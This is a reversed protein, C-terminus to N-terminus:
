RQLQGLLTPSCATLQVRPILETPLAIGQWPIPRSNSDRIGSWICILFPLLLKRKKRGKSLHLTVLSLHFAATSLHCTLALSTSHHAGFRPRLTTNVGLLRGCRGEQRSQMRKGYGEQLKAQVENRCCAHRAPKSDGRVVVFLGLGATALFQNQVAASRMRVSAPAGRWRHSTVIQRQCRPRNFLVSGTRM